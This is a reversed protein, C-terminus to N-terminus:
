AKKRAFSFIQFRMKLELLSNDSFRASSYITGDLVVIFQSNLSKHHQKNMAQKSKFIPM